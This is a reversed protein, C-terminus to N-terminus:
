SKVHSPGHALVFFGLASVPSTHRGFYTSGSGEIVFLEEDDLTRMASLEPVVRLLAEDGGCGGYLLNGVPVAVFEDILQM